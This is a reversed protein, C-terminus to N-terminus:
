ISAQQQQPLFALPPKPVTKLRVEFHLHYGTSRGSRGVTAIAQGRKVWQNRQVLNHENHAYVTVINSTHEVIVLRGYGGPGWASFIVKGAAAARILAGRPAAIDIGDHRQRGSQNFHQTIIGRIPWSLETSGPPRQSVAPRKSVTASSKEKATRAATKAPKDPCPCRSAVRRQRRAGPILLRQGVRLMDRDSLRNVWVLTKLDVQYVRAISWLTQGPKV